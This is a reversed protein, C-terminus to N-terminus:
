NVTSSKVEMSQINNMNFYM